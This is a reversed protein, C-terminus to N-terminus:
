PSAPRGARHGVVDGRLLVARQRLEESIRRVSEGLQAIDQTVVSDDYRGLKMRLEDLERALKGLDAGEFRQM